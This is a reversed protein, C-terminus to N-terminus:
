FRPSPERCAACLQPGNGVDLQFHPPMTEEYGASFVGNLCAHALLPDPKRARLANDRVTEDSSYGEITTNALEEQAKAAEVQVLQQAQAPLYMRISLMGGLWQRARFSCPTTARGLVAANAGQLYGSTRSPAKDDTLGYQWTCAAHCAASGREGKVLPVRMYWLEMCPRVKKVNEMLAGMDGFPNLGGGGQM